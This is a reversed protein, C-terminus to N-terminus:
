EARVNVAMEYSLTFAQNPMQLNAVVDAGPELLLSRSADNPPKKM